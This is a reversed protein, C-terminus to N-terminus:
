LSVGIVDGHVCEVDAWVGIGFSLGLVGGGDISVGIDVTRDLQSFVRWLLVRASVAVVLLLKGAPM